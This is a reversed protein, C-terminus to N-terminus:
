INLCNLNILSCNSNQHQFSSNHTETTNKERNRNRCRLFIFVLFVIETSREILRHLDSPDLDPHLPTWGAAEVSRRPAGVAGDTVVTHLHARVRMNVSLINYIKQTRKLALHQWLLYGSMERDFINFGSSHLCTLCFQILQIVWSNWCVSTSLLFFDTSNNILNPQLTQISTTCETKM